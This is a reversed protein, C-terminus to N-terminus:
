GTLWQFRVGGQFFLGEIERTELTLWDVASLVCGRSFILGRNERSELTLWDVLLLACM